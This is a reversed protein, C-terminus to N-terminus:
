PQVNEIDYYTPTRLDEASAVEARDPEHQAASMGQVAVFANLILVLSLTLAAISPRTVLRSLKEWVNKQERNMRAELRTFFFPKPTAREINGVSDLVEDIHKQIDSMKSM